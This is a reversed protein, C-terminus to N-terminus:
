GGVMLSESRQRSCGGCRGVSDRSLGHSDWIEPFLPRPRVIGISRLIKCLIYLCIFGVNDRSLPVEIGKDVKVMPLRM